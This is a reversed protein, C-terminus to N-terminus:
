QRWRPEKTDDPKKAVGKKAPAEDKNANAVDKKIRASTMEIAERVGGLDDMYVTGQGSPMRGMTQEVTPKDFPWRQLTGRGSGLNFNTVKVNLWTKYLDAHLMEDPSANAVTPLRVEGEAEPRPLPLRTSGPGHRESAPREDFDSM